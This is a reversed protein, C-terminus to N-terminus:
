IIISPFMITLWIGIPMASVKGVMHWQVVAGEFYLELMRGLEDGCSTMLYALDGEYIAFIQPWWTKYRASVSKERCCVLNLVQGFISFNPVRHLVAEILPTVPDILDMLHTCHSENNTSLFYFLSRHM